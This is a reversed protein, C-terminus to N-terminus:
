NSPAIKGAKQFAGGCIVGPRESCIMGWHDFGRAKM